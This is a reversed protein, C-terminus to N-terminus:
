HKFMQGSQRHTLYLIEISINLIIDSCVLLAAASGSMLSENEIVCICNEIQCLDFVFM